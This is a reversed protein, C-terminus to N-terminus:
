GGNSHEKRAPRLASRIREAEQPIERMRICLLEVFDDVIKQRRRCEHVEFFLRRCLKQLEARSSQTRKYQKSKRKDAM